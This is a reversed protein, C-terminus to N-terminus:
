TKLPLIDRVRGFRFEACLARVRRGTKRLNRYHLFQRTLSARLRPQNPDFEWPHLYV